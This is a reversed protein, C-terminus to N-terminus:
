PLPGPDPRTVVTNAPIRAPLVFEVAKGSRRDSGATWHSHPPSRAFGSDRRSVTAPAACTLDTPTSKGEQKGNFQPMRVVGRAGVRVM